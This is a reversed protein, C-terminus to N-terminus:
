YIRVPCLIYQYSFRDELTHECVIPMLPAGFKFTAQEKTDKVFQIMNLFFETNLKVKYGEVKEISGLYLKIDTEVEFPDTQISELYCQTAESSEEFTIAINKIKLKKFQRLNTLMEKITSHEITVANPVAEDNPIIRDVNPYSSVDMPELSHINNFTDVFTENEYKIVLARASDSVTAKNGDSYKVGQLLSNYKARKSKAIKELHISTLDLSTKNNQVAMTYGGKLYKLTVNKYETVKNCNKNYM